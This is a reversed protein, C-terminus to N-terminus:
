AYFSCHLNDPSSIPLCLWEYINCFLGLQTKCPGRFELTKIKTALVIDFLSLEVTTVERISQHNRPSTRSIFMLVDRSTYHGMCWFVENYKRASMYLIVFWKREKDTLAITVNLSVNLYVVSVYSLLKWFEMIRFLNCNFKNSYIGAAISFEIVPFRWKM